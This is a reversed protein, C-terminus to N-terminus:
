ELGFNWDTGLGDKVLFYLRVTVSLRLSGEDDEMKQNKEVVLKLIKDEGDESKEGDKM